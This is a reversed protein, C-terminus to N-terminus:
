SGKTNRIMAEMMNWEDNSVSTLANFEGAMFPSEGGDFTVIEGTIWSAYDSVLFTALNAIEHTEGMRNAPLRDLMLKRFKGTPDLRSFAGKTEIPGPAIANFRMGYRGWESALSRRARFLASFPTLM